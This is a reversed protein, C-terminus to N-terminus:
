AQRRKCTTSEIDCGGTSLSKKDKLDVSTEILPLLKTHELIVSIISNYHKKAPHVQYAGQCDRQSDENM